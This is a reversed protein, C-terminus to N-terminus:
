SSLHDQQDEQDEESRQTPSPNEQSGQHFSISLSGHIHRLSPDPDHLSRPQSHIEDGFGVPSEGIACESELPFSSFPLVHQTSFSLLPQGSVM